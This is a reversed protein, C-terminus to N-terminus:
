EGRKQALAIPEFQFLLDYGFAGYLGLFGDTLGQFEAVIRRLPSFLSPQQSRKEEPFPAAAPLIEITRTTETRAVVNAGEIDALVPDLLDLITCGRANLARLELRKGGGVLELPPDAFGFEWRSYRGPYDVGSSFLGGRTRDLKEAFGDLATEYPLPHRTRSLTLGTKTVFETRM